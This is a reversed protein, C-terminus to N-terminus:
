LCFLRLLQNNQQKRDGNDPSWLHVHKFTSYFRRYIIVEHLISINLVTIYVCLLILIIISISSAIALQNNTYLDLLITHISKVCNTATIIVDDM